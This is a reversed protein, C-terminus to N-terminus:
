KEGRRKKGALIIQRALDGSPMEVVKGAAIGAARTYAALDEQSPQEGRKQAGVIESALALTDIWALEARTAPVANAAAEAIGAYQGKVGRAADMIIPIVERFEAAKERKIARVEARTYFAQPDPLDADLRAASLATQATTAAALHHALEAELRAIRNSM